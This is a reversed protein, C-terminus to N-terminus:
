VAKPAQVKRRALFMVIRPFFSRKKKKKKLLCRDSVSELRMFEDPSTQVPATVSREIRKPKNSEDMSSSGRHLNLAGHGVDSARRRQKNDTRWKRLEQEIALKGEKAKEDKEMAIRREELKAAKELEMEKLRQLTRLESEKAEEIQSIAAAVKLNAQEEVNHATKSLTYYEELSLTVGNPANENSGSGALESKELAMVAALALRESALSAEIEKQTAHLRKDMTFAGVKLLEGEEKAKLMAEHALLASSKIQETDQAAHQLQNPAEVMKERGEKEGKGGKEMQILAIESLVNNPDAELSAVTVSAISGERHKLTSIASKERELESNLSTLAVKLCIVKATVDEINSRVEELEKRVSTIEGHSVLQNRDVPPEQNARFNGEEEQYSKGEKYEELEAKLNLVLTTATDLKSKMEVEPLTHQNLKELEEEAQKLQKEWNSSDQEKAMEAKIRKEEIGQHMEKVRLNALESDQKAQQEERQARELNLKLEEKVRKISDLEDLAKAKADLTAEAQKKYKLLEEESKELELEMLKRKEEAQIKHAKWDIIGGFKTVAEKVSEIPATTDVMEKPDVKKVYGYSYSRRHANNPITTVWVKSMTPEKSQETDHISEEDTRVGNATNSPMTGNVTTHFTTVPDSDEGNLSSDMM